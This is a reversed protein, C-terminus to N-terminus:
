DLLARRIPEVWTGTKPSFVGFSSAFEWYAWGIGRKEAEDRVIRTYAERSKMDAKEYAGFEGLYVPYGSRENWRRAADLADAIQRQQKADCCTPGAPFQPMWEVGQHTFPFPDYNHVMVIINRDAPLRLRPLEPIANWEGPGILVTRSPNTARVAALAQAALSNWAEGNLRGHPENLLEFLLKPSRDKYRAAIQKWLNVLRTDMVAPDVKFENPHQADGSLQTYHHVDLIVYMGKAFFADVVEDVRKAFAEDIKADATPAAHNSWRVPLRVTKFAQAAMDVYAPELKVGWDGERPADLMNGMNIGRGLSRAITCTEQSVSACSQPAAQACCALFFLALVVTSKMRRMRGFGASM